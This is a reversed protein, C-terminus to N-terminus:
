LNIFIAPVSIPNKSFGIPKIFNYFEISGLGLIYPINHDDLFFQIKDGIEDSEAETQNRGIPNYPKDRVLTYNM